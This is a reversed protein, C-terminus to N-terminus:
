RFIECQAIINSKLEWGSVIGKSLDVCEFKGDFDMNPYSGIGNPSAQDVISTITSNETDIIEITFIHNALSAILFGDKLIFSSIGPLNLFAINVPADLNSNDVIHIGTEKETILLYNGYYETQGVTGYLRPDESVLDGIELQVYIPALATILPADIDLSNDCQIFTFALLIFILNKM